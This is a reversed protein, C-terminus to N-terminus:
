GRWPLLSALMSAVTSSPPPPPPPTAVVLSPVLYAVADTAVSRLWASKDPTVIQYTHNLHVLHAIGLLILSLVVIRWTIYLVQSLFFYVFLMLVAVAALAVTVKFAQDVDMGHMTM